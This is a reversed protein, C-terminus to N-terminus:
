SACDRSRFTVVIAVCALANPYVSTGRGACLYSRTGQGRRDHGEELLAVWARLHGM